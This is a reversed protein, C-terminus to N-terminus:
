DLDIAAGFPRVFIAVSVFVNCTPSAAGSKVSRACSPLSTVSEEVCASTYRSPETVGACRGTPTVSVSRKPVTVTM